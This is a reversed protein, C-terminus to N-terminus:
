HRTDADRLGYPLSSAHEIELLRNYKALREGRAPAGSKMQGCGIGVALDAIFADPTEGSRHSVMQAYGVSRCTLVTDLTLEVSGCQNPKILCANGIRDDAARRVRDADTVFADDGVVQIQDGLAATLRQWGDTDDEAFGDEISWIPFDRVMEAYRDVLEASTFTGDDLRYGDASHFGNAAPDLAIAVGERGARYGAAEIAEVVVTLVDEARTFAAAFGGEDGLGTDMGRAQLSRRLAAYVEAGARLAEAFSPSGIPAIMFEQFALDNSAHAGGNVVNFHPVPLRPEGGVHEAVLGWVPVSRSLAVARTLAISVGVAANAGLRSLNDTGDLDRVARDAALVDDLGTMSTGRLCENIQRRVSGVAALVGRGGYRDPDDDRLEVAEHAGTSAGSPVGAVAHVGDSLRAEVQLTPQGRSDLIEMAELSVVTPM